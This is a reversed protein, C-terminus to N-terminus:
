NQSLQDIKMKIKEYNLIDEIFYRTNKRYFLTAPLSGTWEPDVKNIWENSNPDNLLVVESNVKNKILYPVLSEHMQNVFDLSVLIIKVKKGKYADHIKEFEPLEKRCPICWTAWFNIIYTTDTNKHLLPELGNYNLVSINTQAQNNIELIFYFFILFVKIMHNKM